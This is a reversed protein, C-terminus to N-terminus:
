INVTSTFCCHLLLLLLRYSYWMKLNDLTIQYSCHLLFYLITTENENTMPDHSVMVVIGSRQPWWLLVCFTLRQSWSADQMNVPYLETRDRAKGLTSIQAARCFTQHHQHGEWPLSYFEVRVNWAMSQCTSVYIRSIHIMLLLAMEFFQLM